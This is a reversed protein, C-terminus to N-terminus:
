RRFRADHHDDNAQLALYNAWTPTNFSLTTLGNIPGLAVRAAYVVPNSNAPIWGSVVGDNVLVNSTDANPLALHLVNLSIDPDYGFPFDTGARFALATNGLTLPEPLRM